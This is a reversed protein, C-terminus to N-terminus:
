YKELTNKWHKGIYKDDSLSCMIIEKVDRILSTLSIIMHEKLSSINTICHYFNVHLAFNHTIIFIPKCFNLWFM